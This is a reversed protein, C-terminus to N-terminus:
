SKSDSVQCVNSGSEAIHEEESVQDIREKEQRTEILHQRMLNAAGERDGGEIMDLIRLHEWCRKYLRQRNSLARYTILRRLRNHHSLAEAFFPNGSCRVLRMHFDTQIQYLRPPAFTEIGGNLMDKQETRSKSFAEADINFGPELIAAPEILTRFRYSASHIEKTVFVSVFTWGYGRKKEVWGEYAMRTLVEVAEARTLNYRRMLEAESIDEPLHGELRDSAIALYTREYADGQLPASVEEVNPLEDPSERKLFFGRNPRTELVGMEVLTCFANRIPTRSVKFLTAIATASLHDGVAYDSDRIHALLQGILQESLTKSERNTM